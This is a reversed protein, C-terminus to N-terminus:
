RIICVISEICFINRQGTLRVVFLVFSVISFYNGSEDFFFITIELKAVFSSFCLKGGSSTIVMSYITIRNKPEFILSRNIEIQSNTFHRHIIIFCNRFIQNNYTLM